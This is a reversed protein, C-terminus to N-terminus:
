LVRDHQKLELKNYKRQVIKRHILMSGRFNVVKNKSRRQDDKITEDKEQSKKIM